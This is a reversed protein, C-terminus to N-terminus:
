KLRGRVAVAQNERDKLTQPADTQSAVWERIDRISERDLQELEDYIAQNHEADERASIEEATEFPEVVVGGDAIWDQILKYHRNGDVRPVNITDNVIYGDEGNHKVKLIEM